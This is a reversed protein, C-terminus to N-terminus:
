KARALRETGRSFDVALSEGAGSTLRLDHTKEVLKGNRTIQVRVQYDYSFGPKLNYSRYVRQPGIATTKFGNIIVEADVPVSLTITGSGNPTEITTAGSTKVPENPTGAAPAPPPTPKRAPAPNRPPALTPEVDATPKQAPTPTDAASTAETETCCCEQCCCVPCCVTPYCSLYRTSCPQWGHCWSGCYPTYCPIYCCPSSYWCTRYAHRSRCGADAQSTATAVIGILVAGLLLLKWSTRFM